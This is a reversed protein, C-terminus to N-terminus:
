IFRFNQSPVHVNSDIVFLIRLFFRRLRVRCFILHRNPRNTISFAWREDQLYLEMPGLRFCWFLFAILIRVLRYIISFCHQQNSHVCVWGNRIQEQARKRSSPFNLLNILFCEIFFNRNIYTQLLKLQLSPLRIRMSTFSFNPFFLM